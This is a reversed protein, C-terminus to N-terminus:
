GAHALMSTASTRRRYGSPTTGLWQRFAKHFSNSTSFGLVFSIEAVSMETNELYRLALARRVETVLERHTVGEVKLRRLFTRASIDMRHALNEVGPNGNTLEEAILDLVQQKFTRRCPVRELMATAHRQLISHLAPEPRPLPIDLAATPMILADCAAGFRIPAQFLSAHHEISTPAPHKLSVEAPNIELGLLRRGLMLMSALVFEAAVHSEDAEDCEYCLLAREGSVKLTLRAGTNMLQVLRAACRIADGLNACTAAAYEIVDFDGPAVCQAARLGLEPRGSARSVRELLEVVRAHPLWAESETLRQVDLGLHKLELALEHVVARPACEHIAQVFPRLWRASCLGSHTPAPTREGSLVSIAM